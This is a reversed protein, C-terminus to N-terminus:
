ATRRKTASVEETVSCTVEVTIALAVVGSQTRGINVEEDALTIPLEEHWYISEFLVAVM